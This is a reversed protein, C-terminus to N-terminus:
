LTGSSRLPEAVYRRLTPAAITARAEDVPLPGRDSLESELTQGEVLEMWVGVRGDFVDAGFVTAVNPHRVRALLRGENVM